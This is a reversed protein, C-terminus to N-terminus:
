EMLMILRDKNPGFEKLRFGSTSGSLSDHNFYTMNGGLVLEKDAAVYVFDTILREFQTNWFLEILGIYKRGYNNQGKQTVIHRRVTGNGNIYVEQGINLDSWKLREIFRGSTPFDFCNKIMNFPGLHILHLDSVIRDMKYACDPFLTIIQGNSIQMEQPWLIPSANWYWANRFERRGDDFIKSCFLGYRQPIGDNKCNSFEIMDGVCVGALSIVETSRRIDDITQITTTM